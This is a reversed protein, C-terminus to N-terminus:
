ILSVYLMKYGLRLDPNFKLISIQVASSVTAFAVRSDCIDM